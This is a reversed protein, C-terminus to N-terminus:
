GVGSLQKVSNNWPRPRDYHLRCQAPKTVGSHVGIVFLSRFEATFYLVTDSYYGTIILSHM